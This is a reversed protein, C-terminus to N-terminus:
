ADDKKKVGYNETLHREKRSLLKLNLRHGVYKRNPKSKMSDEVMEKIAASVAEPDNCEQVLNASAEMQPSINVKTNEAAEATKKTTEM